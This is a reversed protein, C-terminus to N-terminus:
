TYPIEVTVEVRLGDGADINIPSPLTWYLWLYYDGNYNGNLGSGSKSIYNPGSGRDTYYSVGIETISASSTFTFSVIYHIQFSGTENVEAIAQSDTTSLRQLRNALTYTEFLPSATSSGNGIEIYFYEGAVNDKPLYTNSTDYGFYDLATDIVGTNSSEAKLTLFSGRPQNNPYGTTGTYGLWYNILANYFWRTFPGTTTYPITIEYTIAVSDGEVLSISPSVSDHAVLVYVLTRGGSTDIDLRLELGVETLTFDQQITFTKTYTVIYQSNVSDDTVTMDPVAKTVESFMKYDYSSPTGSGSGLVVYMVPNYSGVYMKDGSVYDQETDVWTRANYGTDYWTLAGSRIFGFMMNAVMRYWQITIPDNEKHREAILEGDRYVKIEYSATIKLSAVGPESSERGFLIKLRVTNDQIGTNIRAVGYAMVIIILIIYALVCYRNM